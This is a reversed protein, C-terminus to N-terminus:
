PRLQFETRNRARAAKGRGQDAYGGARGAHAWRGGRNGADPHGVHDCTVFHEGVAVVGSFEHPTLGPSSITLLFAGAAVHTFAFLGYEDSTVQLESSERERKLTVVAGAIEAGSQDVIKGRISGEEREAQQQGGAAAQTGQSEALAGPTTQGM